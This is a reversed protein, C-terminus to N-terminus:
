IMYEIEGLLEAALTPLNKPKAKAAEKRLKVIREHIEEPSAFYIRERLPNSLSKQMQADVEKLQPFCCERDRRNVSRPRRGGSDAARRRRPHPAAYRAIDGM